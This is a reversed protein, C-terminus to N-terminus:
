LLAFYTITQSGSISVAYILSLDTILFNITEGPVLIRNQSTANGIKVNQTNGLAATLEVTKCPTSATILKAPTATITVSGDLITTPSYPYPQIDAM